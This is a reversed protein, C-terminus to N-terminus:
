RMLPYESFGLLRCEPQPVIGYADFVKQQMTRAVTIIDATKANGKNVLMNAHQYSVVADGCSLAGKVGIKDLYYAVYILKKGMSELTVEEPHFNRFFSGCTGSNPYRSVRHRIIEKRRGQAYAVELPTEALKLKFTANVLYYSALHLTSYNYGFHFWDRNVMLFEGTVANIVTAETIFNSLLFEFYHINIFVSGGVTGPIGSFEELGLAGHELCSDILEHISVGADATVHVHDDKTKYTINKFAPHIVLGSIGTDSILMNAGEGLLTIPKNNQRAYVISQSFEDADQPAAYLEAKGGTKFWNKDALSVHQQILVKKIVSM